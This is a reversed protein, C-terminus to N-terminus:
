EARKVATNGGGGTGLPLHNVGPNTFVGSHLSLLRPGGADPSPFAHPLCRPQVLRLVSPPLPSSRSPISGLHPLAPIEWGSAPLALPTLLVRSRGREAPLGPSAAGPGGRWGTGGPGARGRHRESDCRTVSAGSVEVAVSSLDSLLRLPLVFLIFLILSFACRLTGSIGPAGASVERGAASTGSGGRVGAGECGGASVAPSARAAGVAAAPCTSVSRWARSCLGKATAHAPCM